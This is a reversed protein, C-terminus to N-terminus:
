VKMKEEHGVLVFSNLSNPASAIVDVYSLDDITSVPVLSSDDLDSSLSLKREIEALIQTPSKKELSEQDNNSVKNGESSDKRLV